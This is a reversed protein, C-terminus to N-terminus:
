KIREMMKVVNTCFTILSETKECKPEIDNEVEMESEGLLAKESVERIYRLPRQVRWEISDTNVDLNEDSIVDYNKLMSKIQLDAFDRSMMLLGKVTAKASAQYKDETMYELQKDYVQLVM